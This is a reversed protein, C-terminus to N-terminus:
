TAKFRRMIPATPLNRTGSGGRATNGSPQIWIQSHSCRCSPRASRSPSIGQARFCDCRQKARASVLFGPVFTLKASLRAFALGESRAIGLYIVAAGLAIWTPDIARSLLVLSERLEKNPLLRKFSPDEAAWSGFGSTWVIAVLVSAAIFLAWLIGALPALTRSLTSPPNM